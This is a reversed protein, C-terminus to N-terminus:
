RPVKPSPAPRWGPVLLQRMREETIEGQEYQQRIAEEANDLPARRKMEALILKEYQRNDPYNESPSSTEGVALNMTEKFIAWGQQLESGPFGTITARSKNPKPVAAKTSASWAKEKGLVFSKLANLQGFVLLLLLLGGAFLKGLHHRLLAPSLSKKHSTTTTTM